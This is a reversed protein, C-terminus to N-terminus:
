PPASSGHGPRFGFAGFTTSLLAREFLKSALTLTESSELRAPTGFTRHVDVGRGHDLRPRLAFRTKPAALRHSGDVMAGLRVSPLSQPDHDNPAAAAPGLTRV